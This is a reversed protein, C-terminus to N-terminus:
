GHLQRVWSLLDPNQRLPPKPHRWLAPLFLIDTHSIEKLSHDPALSFGAATQVSNHTLGVTVIELSSQERTQVRAANEAARLMEIPLTMSTALMQECCFFTIHTM